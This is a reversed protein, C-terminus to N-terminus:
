CCSGAPLGMVWLIMPIAPLYFTLFLALPGITFLMAAFLEEFLELAASIAGTVGFKGAVVGVISDEAGRSAIKAIVKATYMIELTSLIQGGFSSLGTVPDPSTLTRALGNRLLGTIYTISLREMQKFGGGWGESAAGSFENSTYSSNSQENVPSGFKAVPSREGLYRAFETQYTPWDPHSKVKSNPQIYYPRASLIDQTTRNIRQIDWYWSGATIWGAEVSGMTQTTTIPNGAAWWDIRKQAIAAAATQAAAM